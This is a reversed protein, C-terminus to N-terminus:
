STDLCTWEKGRTPHFAYERWIEEYAVLASRRPEIAVRDFLWDFGAAVPVKGKGKPYALEGIEDWDWDEMDPISRTSYQLALLACAAEKADERGGHKLLNEAYYYLGDPNGDRVAVKLYLDRHMGHSLYVDDRTEIARLFSVACRSNGKEVGAHWQALGQEPDQLLLTSGLEHDAWRSGDALARRSWTLIEDSDAATIQFKEVRYWAAERDMTVVKDLFKLTRGEIPIPGRANMALIFNEVLVEARGLKAAQHAYNTFAEVQETTKPYSVEFWGLYECAYVCGEAASERMLALGREPDEKLRPHYGEILCMGLFAKDLPTDPAPPEVPRGLKLWIEIALAVSLNHVWDQSPYPLKEFHPLGM